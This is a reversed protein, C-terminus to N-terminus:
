HIGMGKQSHDQNMGVGNDSILLRFVNNEIKIQLSVDTARAHKLTNNIAELAVNYLQHEENKSLRQMQQEEFHFRIDGLENLKKFLVRFASSLGEQELEPPLMNHSILR